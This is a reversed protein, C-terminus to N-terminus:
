AEEVSEDGKSVGGSVGSNGSGGGNGGTGMVNQYANNAMVSANNFEDSLNGTIMQGNAKKSEFATKMANAATKYDNSLNEDKIEYYKGNEMKQDTYGTYGMATQTQVMVLRYSTVGDNGDFDYGIEFNYYAILSMSDVDLIMEFALKDKEKDVTPLLTLEASVTGQSSLHTAEVTFTVADSSVIFDENSYYDGIMYVFSIMTAADAKANKLRGEEVEQLEDPVTVAFPSVVNTKNVAKASVMSATPSGAGLKEWAGAAANKFLTSLEAKTLEGDDGDNCGVLGIAASLTLLFTLFTTLLKKM